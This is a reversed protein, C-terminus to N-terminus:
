CRSQLGGKQAQPNRELSDRVDQLAVGLFYHVLEVVGRNFESAISLSPYM